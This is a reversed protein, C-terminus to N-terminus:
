IARPEAFFVIRSMPGSRVTGKYHRTGSAPGTRGLRGTQLPSSTPFSGTINRTEVATAKLARMTDDIGAAAASAFVTVKVLSTAGMKWCFHSDHWRGLLM